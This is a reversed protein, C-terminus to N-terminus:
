IVEKLKPDGDEENKELNYHSPEFFCDDFSVIDFENDVEGTYDQREAKVIVPPTPATIVPIEAVKFSVVRESEKKKNTELVKNFAASPFLDEVSKVEEEWAQYTEPSKSLSSVIVKHGVRRRLVNFEERLDELQFYLDTLSTLSNTCEKCLWLSRKNVMGHRFSGAIGKASFKNNNVLLVKLLVELVQDSFTMSLSAVDGENVQPVRCVDCSDIVLVPPSSEEQPGKRSIKKKKKSDIDKLEEPSPNVSVLSVEERSFFWLPLTEKWNEVDKLNVNSM